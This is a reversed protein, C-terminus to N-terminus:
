DKALKRFIGISLSTVFTIGALCFVNSWYHSLLASSLSGPWMPGDKIVANVVFLYVGSVVVTIITCVIVINRYNM